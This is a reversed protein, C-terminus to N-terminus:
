KKVIRHSSVDKDRKLQLVYLGAEADTLGVSIEQSVQELSGKAKLLIKGELTLLVVEVEKGAPHDEIVLMISGVSPNPFIAIKEQDEPDKIGTPSVVKIVLQQERAALGDSVILTVPHDGESDIAPTGSLLQTATDFNLWSPLEVASYILTNAPLDADTAILQYIYAEGVIASVPPASTIVPAQNVEHVVVTVTQQVTLLGDHLLVDFTHIGDQDEAPKWSFQGTTSNISAGAPADQSLLFKLSTSGDADSGRATFRIAEEENGSVEALAALVPANDNLNKLRIKVSANAANGAKDSASLKLVFERSTEYDLAATNQISVVGGTSIMFANAKNGETIKWGQISCNDSASITAAATGAPSNEDIEFVQNPAIVPAHPDVVTVTAVASATNGGGDSATLKVTNVGIDSCSFTIRDLRLSTLECNDSFGDNIDAAAVVAEGNKNLQVSINKTRAVPTTADFVTVTINKQTTNGSADKATVTVATPKGVEACSFRTRSFTIGPTSCNDSKATVAAAETLTATGNEDLPLRVDQVRLIPAEKEELTVIAKQTATNGSADKVTLVVENTGLVSCSFNGRNLSLTVTSCDDSSGNDVDAAKISAKGSADLFVTINKTLAIPAVKDEVYVALPKETKNGAADTATVTIAFTKGADACDFATRSIGIAPDSCNDSKSIVAAAETLTAKGNADLQLNVNQVKLDPPLLDKVVVNATGTATNGAQDTVSLTLERRQDLDQCSYTTHSLSFRLASAATFNDSSGNNVDAVGVSANGTADLALTVDKVRVRPAQRDVIFSLAEGTTSTNGAADSAAAKVQYRGDTLEKDAPIVYYWRGNADATTTALLSENLYILVRSSAEAAGNLQPRTDSTIDDTNSNGTDSNGGLSPKEPIAPPTVDYVFGSVANSAASNGPKDRYSVTVAYTAGSVLADNPSTSVSVVSSHSGLRNGKLTFTHRGSTEAASNFTLMHPSHRDSNGGTRTFTLTVTGAMAAEPLSFAVAIDNSSTTNQAPKYLQPPETTNDTQTEESVWVIVAQSIAKAGAADTVRAELKFEGAQAPTWNIEFPSSADEGIKKCNAFFEVLKVAGEPDSAAAAVKISQRVTHETGGAPASISVTPSKTYSSLVKELVQFWKDAMKIAGRRNVHIGDFTDEGPAANFGTYQDVMIVPSQATTLEQVLGPIEDNFLRVNTEKNAGVTPGHAPILTALLIVVKPNDQRLVKVVERLEIITGTVSQNQFMDNSGLHMLVVDPTYNQLWVSLKGPDDGSKGNLIQDARWGGHGEHALVPITGPEEICSQVERNWVFNATLSGIFEFNIHADTLQEYLPYRYGPNEVKGETISNGM